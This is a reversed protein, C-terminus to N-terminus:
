SEGSPNVMTTGNWRRKRAPFCQIHNLKNLSAAEHKRRFSWLFIYLHGEFSRLIVGHSRTYIIRSCMLKDLGLRTVLHSWSQPQTCVVCSDCLTGGGGDHPWTQTDKSSCLTCQTCFPGNGDRWWQGRFAKSGQINHTHAHTFAHEHTTWSWLVYWLTLRTGLGSGSKIECGHPSSTQSHGPSLAVVTDLYLNTEGQSGLM